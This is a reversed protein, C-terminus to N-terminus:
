VFSLTDNITVEGYVKNKENINIPIKCVPYALILRDFVLKTAYADFYARHFNNGVDINYHKVLTELKHNPLSSLAKQSIRLTDYGCRQNNLTFDLGLPKGKAILFNYDFTLNHGLFNFDECWDFFEVLVTEIPEESAVMDDTIHTLAQVDRPISCIPKVLRSFKDVVVGDKIKWAGIDIIENATPSFGTTELDFSIYSLGM